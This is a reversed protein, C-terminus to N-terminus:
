PRRTAAARALAASRAIELYSRLTARAHRRLPRDTPTGRAALIDVVRSRFRLETMGFNVLIEEAPPGGYPQWLLAFEIITLDEKDM